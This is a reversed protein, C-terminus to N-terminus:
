EKVNNIWFSSNCFKSYGTLGQRNFDIFNKEVPLQTDILTVNGWDNIAGALPLKPNHVVFAFINKIGAKKAAYIRHMGDCLLYKNDRIELIPPVVLRKCGSEYYVEYPMFLSINSQQCKEILDEAKKLRDSYVHLCSPSIMSIPVCEFRWECSLHFKAQLIPLLKKYDFSQIKTTESALM